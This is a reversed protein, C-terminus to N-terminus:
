LRADEQTQKESAYDEPSFPLEALWASIEASELEALKDAVAKNFADNDDPTSTLWAHYADEGIRNLISRCMTMIREKAIRAAEQERLQKEFLWDRQERLETSAARGTLKGNSTRAM